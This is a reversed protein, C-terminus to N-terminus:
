RERPKTFCEHCLPPVTGTLAEVGVCRSCWVTGRADPKPESSAAEPPVLDSDGSYEGNLADEVWRRPDTLLRRPTLPIGKGALGNLLASRRLEVFFRAWKAKPFTLAAGDAHLEQAPSFEDWRARRSGPEITENWATRLEAGTLREDPPPIEPPAVVAPQRGRGQERGAGAVAGAGAGPSKAEHQCPAPVSRPLAQGSKPPAPLTSPVEKVHFKQHKPLAPIHILRIGNAEYRKIFEKNHLEQLLADFDVDDYPLVAVKLRKPRDELRGERDAHGWLGIFALRTLAPLEALEEHAFFEPKISRIRAM